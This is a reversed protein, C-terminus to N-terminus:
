ALGRDQLYKTLVQNSGSNAKLDFCSETLTRGFGRWLTAMQTRTPEDPALLFLDNLTHIKDCNDVYWDLPARYTALEREVADVEVFKTLYDLEAQDDDSLGHELKKRNSLALREEEEKGASLTTVTSTPPLAQALV